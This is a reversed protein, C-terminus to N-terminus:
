SCIGVELPKIYKILSTRYFFKCQGDWDQEMKKELKIESECQPCTFYDEEEWGDYYHKECVPCIPYSQNEVKKRWDTIPLLTYPEYFLNDKNSCCWKYYIGNLKINKHPLTEKTEGIFYFNDEIWQQEVHPTFLKSFAKDFDYLYLRSM